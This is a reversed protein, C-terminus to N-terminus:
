QGLTSKIMVLEITRAMAEVVDKPANPITHGRGHNYQLRGWSQCLRVMRKSHDVDPDEDGYIHASPVHVVEKDTDPDLFRLQNEQLGQQCYPTGSCMFIAFKFPPNHKHRILVMAALVAGQSFGLVGDYPGTEVIFSALDDIATTISQADYPDFYAFSEETSYGLSEILRL